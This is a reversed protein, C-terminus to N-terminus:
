LAITSNPWYIIEYIPGVNLDLPKGILSFGVNPGHDFIYQDLIILWYQALTLSM